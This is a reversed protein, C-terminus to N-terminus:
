KIWLKKILQKIIILQFKDDRKCFRNAEVMLMKYAKEGM